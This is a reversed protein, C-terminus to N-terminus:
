IQDDCLVQVVKGQEVRTAGITHRLYVQWNYSKDERESVRAFLDEWLGLHMGSPVWAPILRNGSSIELRDIVIFKFGMFRDVVGDVLVPNGGNFDKSTVEIEKLLADHEYTSIAMYPMEPLEGKHALMLQKRAQQLKAVNLSSATGGVDVGVQYNSTDFVEDTTGNEGVKATAFFAAIIVDDINRNMAAVGAQTIPSSPDIIMRLKDMNDVLRGWHYDSPFVWPRTSEFDINPTDEYRTTRKVAATEGFQEVVTASKGTYSDSTVAGRLRTEKQQLLLMSAAKYDEVFASNIFDSM